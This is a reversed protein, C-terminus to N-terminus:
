HVTDYWPLQGVTKLHAESISLSLQGVGNSCYALNSCLVAVNLCAKTGRLRQSRDSIESDAWTM